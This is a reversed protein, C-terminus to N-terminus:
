HVEQITMKRVNVITKSIRMVVNLKQIVNANIQRRILDALVEQVIEPPVAQGGALFIKNKVLGNHRFIEFLIHQRLLNLFIFESFYLSVFFVIIM